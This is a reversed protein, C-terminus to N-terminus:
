VRRKGILRAIRQAEEKGHGRCAETGNAPAARGDTTFQERVDDTSAASIFPYSIYQTLRLLVRLPNSAQRVCHIQERQGSEEILQAKFGPKSTM